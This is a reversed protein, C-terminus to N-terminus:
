PLARIYLLAAATEAASFFSAIFLIFPALVVLVGSNIKGLQTLVVLLPLPYIIAVFLCCHQSRLLSSFAVVSCSIPVAASLSDLFHAWLSYRNLRGFFYYCCFPLLTSLVVVFLLGCGLLQFSAFCYCELTRSSPGSFDERLSWCENGYLLVSLM